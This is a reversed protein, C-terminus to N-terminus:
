NQLTFNNQPHITTITVWRCSRKYGWWEVNKFMTISDHQTNKAVIIMTM